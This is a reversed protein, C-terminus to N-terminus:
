NRDLQHLGSRASHNLKSVYAPILVDKVLDRVEAYTPGCAIKESM